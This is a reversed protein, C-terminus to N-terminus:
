KDEAEMRRRKHEEVRNIVFSIVIVIAALAYLAEFFLDM